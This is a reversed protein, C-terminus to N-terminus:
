PIGVLPPEGPRSPFLVALQLTDEPRLRLRYFGNPLDIKSLYVPGFHANAHHIQDLVRYLARGFHMAKPPVVKLTSANVGFFSYDSIMRDRRGQQPILGLPSLRLGLLDIM